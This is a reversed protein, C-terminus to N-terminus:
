ATKFPKDWSADAPQLLSTLGGLIFGVDSKLSSACTKVKDTM